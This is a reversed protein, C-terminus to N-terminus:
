RTSGHISAATSRSQGLVRKRYQILPVFPALLANKRLLQYIISKGLRRKLKPDVQRAARYIVRQRDWPIKWRKSLTTDVWEGVITQRAQEAMEKSVAAHELLYRIVRYAEEHYVGGSDANGGVSKSHLRFYNLPEAVYAIDSILLMKIWMLWDGSVKLTEDAYGAREYVSRRFLVGSANPITNHCVLSRGCEDAGANIFDQDWRRSNERWVEVWPIVNDREDVRLSECYALGVNPNEDLKRVLRELLREDAYDDAEAIWVYEGQALRVGKNWQKFPVGGNVDNFVARIRGDDAFKALVENSNDTSADDLYIVEFDQFTQHLVSKLRKTLFRGHNYNPIIVTVKPM